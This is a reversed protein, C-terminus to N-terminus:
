ENKLDEMMAVLSHLGKLPGERQFAYRAGAIHDYGKKTLECLSLIIYTADDETGGSRAIFGAIALTLENRRGDAKAWYPELVQIVTDRDIRTSGMPMRKSWTKQSATSKIFKSLAALLDDKKVIAVEVDRIERIGYTTGNPHISGPGLAYGGKGKIYAGDILPVCGIPQDELFYAFQFHGARGTSWRFTRPLEAELVEQIAKSDADIFSSFGAPSTVGYNGGSKVYKIIEQNSASYNSVTNWHSEVAEKGHPKVKILRINPDDFQKPFIGKKIM